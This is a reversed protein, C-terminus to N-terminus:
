SRARRTPAHLRRTPARTAPRSRQARVPGGPGDGGGTSVERKRRRPPYEITMLRLCPDNDLPPSTAPLAKFTTIGTASSATAAAMTAIVALALPLVLFTSTKPVDASGTASSPASM